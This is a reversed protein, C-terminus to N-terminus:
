RVELGGRRGGGLEPFQAGLGSRLSWLVTTLSTLVGIQDKDDVWPNNHGLLVAGCTGAHLPTM